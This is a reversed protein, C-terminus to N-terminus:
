SIYDLAGQLISQAALKDILGSDKAQVRTQRKEVFEDVFDEVSVTSLREDWFAIWPDDGFIDPHNAMEQAFARVRECSPGASGDMNVPFGLVFGGIEYEDIITKLEAIDKTFKTRKVTCLPTSLRLGSDSIAVGLTKKGIDLGMLRVGTPRSDIIDKLLGTPM